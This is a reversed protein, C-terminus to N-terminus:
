YAVPPSPSVRDPYAGAGHRIALGKRVPARGLSGLIDGFRSGDETQDPVVRRRVVIESRLAGLIRLARETVFAARASQGHMAIDAIGCPRHLEGRLLSFTDAADLKVDAGPADLFRTAPRM